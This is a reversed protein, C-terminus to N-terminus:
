RQELNAEASLTQSGDAQLVLTAIRQESEPESGTEIESQFRYTGAPLCPGSRGRTFIQYIETVSSDPDITEVRELDQVMSRADEPYRWCGNDTQLPESDIRVGNPEPNLVLNRAWALSERSRHVLLAMSLAVRATGTGTNTLQIRARAPGDASQQELMEATLSLSPNGDSGGTRVTGAHTATGPSDDDATICGTASVVFGSSLWQLIRRRHLRM